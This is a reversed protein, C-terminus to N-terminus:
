QTEKLPPAFPALDSRPLRPRPPSETLTARKTATTIEEPSRLVRVSRLIQMNAPGSPGPPTIDPPNSPSRRQGLWLGAVALFVLFVVAAVLLVLITPTM